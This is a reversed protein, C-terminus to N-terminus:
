GLGPGPPPDTPSGARSGSRTDHAPEAALFETIALALLLVLTVGVVVWATPHDLLAWLVFALVAAGTLGATIWRRHGRTWPGVPGTRLGARGAAARARSLSTHWLGRVATAHRGRGTVWAALALVLALTVVMRVASRLFRVMADYVAGAASPSVGSPLADLYVARFATLALGLVVMAVAAGIAAAVVARRRRVALLVGAVLLVVAVVPLWAGALQLLRFATKVKGIDESRFVTLETHVTPIRAAVSVGDAVLRAKVEDVVPGLDIQVADNTLQVAGGGSGTLAKDVATHARRNANTWFTAFRDSSVVQDAKDRVFGRLANELAGGLKGLAQELRPRDAPAVDQLLAPVNIHAMVADTIRNAAAAQVDPDSALPAVTAVYRDTDGVEDAAWAAVAGLPALVCGIVILLASLFSRVRHHRSPEAPRAELAAIRAHLRALEAETSGRGGSAVSAAPPTGQARAGRGSADGPPPTSHAGGPRPTGPTDGPRPDGPAARPTPPDHRDHPTPPPGPSGGPAGEAGNEGGTGDTGDDRDM